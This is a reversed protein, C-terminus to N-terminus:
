VWIYSMSIGKALYLKTWTQHWIKQYHNRWQLLLPCVKRLSACFLSPTSVQIYWEYALNCSYMVPNFLVINEATSPIFFWIHRNKPKRFLNTVCTCLKVVWFALVAKSLKVTRTPFRDLVWTHTNKCECIPWFIFFPQLMGDVLQSITNDLKV